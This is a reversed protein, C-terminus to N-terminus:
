RMGWRKARELDNTLSPSWRYAPDRWNRPDKPKTPAMTAWYLRRNYTGAGLERMTRFDTFDPRGRVNAAAGWFGKRITVRAAESDPPFACLTVAVTSLLLAIFLNATSSKRM